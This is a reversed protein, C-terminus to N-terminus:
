ASSRSVACDQLVAIRKYSSRVGSVLTVETLALILLQEYFAFLVGTVNFPYRDNKGLRGLCMCCLVHLSVLVKNLVDSVVVCSLLSM